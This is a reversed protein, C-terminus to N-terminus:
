GHRATRRVAGFAASVIALLGGAAVVLALVFLAKLWSPRDASEDYYNLAIVSLVFYLTIGAGLLSVGAVAALRAWRRPSLNWILIVTACIVVVAALVALAILLAV